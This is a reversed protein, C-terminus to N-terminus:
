YRNYLFLLRAKLAPIYLILYKLLFKKNLIAIINRGLELSPKIPQPLIMWYVAFKQNQKEILSGRKIKFNRPGLFEFPPPERYWGSGRL